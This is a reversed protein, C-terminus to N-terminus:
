NVSLSIVHSELDSEFYVYNKVKIYKCAALLMDDHVRITGSM